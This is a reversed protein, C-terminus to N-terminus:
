RKIEWTLCHLCVEKGDYNINTPKGCHPCLVKGYFQDGESDVEIISPVFTAVVCALGLIVVLAILEKM